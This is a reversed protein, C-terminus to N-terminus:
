ILRRVTPVDPNFAIGPRLQRSMLSNNLSVGNVTVSQHRMVSFGHKSFFLEAALSVHASLESIQRQAAVQHIHHMLASGVGRRSFQGSVFFHDICGSGQLDTYGAIRGDIVAIFPHLSSIKESWQQKDYALPAWANLQEKTYFGSALEHVSSMFVCRLETEEGPNFDRILM